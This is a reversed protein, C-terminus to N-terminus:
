NRLRGTSKPSFPDADSGLVSFFVGAKVGFLLFFMVPRYLQIVWFLSTEKMYPAFNLLKQSCCMKGILRHIDRYSTGKKPFLVFRTWGDGQRRTFADINNM